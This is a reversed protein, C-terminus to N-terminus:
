SVQGITNLNTRVEEYYRYKTVEVNRAVKSLDNRLLDTITAHEAKEKENSLLVQKANILNADITGKMPYTQIKKDQIRIFTEPSFCVFENKLWIKYKAVSRNFIDEFTLSTVIKHKSTLNVLYSNGLKLEHLVKNFKLNYDDKGIPIKEFSFDSVPLPNNRYNSVGNFCYILEPPCEEVLWAKPKNLQFDILFIFKRREKGWRNLKEKITM